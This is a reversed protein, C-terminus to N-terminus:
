NRKLLDKPRTSCNRSKRSLLPVKQKEDLLQKYTAEKDAFNDIVTNQKQEYDQNLLTMATLENKLQGNEQELEDM